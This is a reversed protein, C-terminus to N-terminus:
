CNKRYSWILNRVQCNQCMSDRRSTLWFDETSALTKVVYIVQELYQQLTKSCEGRGFVFPIFFLFLVSKNSSKSDSRDM